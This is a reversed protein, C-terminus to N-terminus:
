QRLCRLNGLSDWPQGKWSKWQWQLGLFGFVWVVSFRTRLHAFCAMLLPGTKPIWFVIFFCKRWIGILIPEWNAYSWSSAAEILMSALITAISYSMSFSVLSTFTRRSSFWARLSSFWSEACWQSRLALFCWFDQRSSPPSLLSSSHFCICSLSWLRLPFYSFIIFLIPLEDITFWSSM